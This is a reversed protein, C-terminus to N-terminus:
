SLTLWMWVIYYHQQELRFFLGRVRVLLFNLHSIWMFKLDSKWIISITLFNDCCFTISEVIGLYAFCLRLTSFRTVATLYISVQFYFMKRPTRIDLVTFVLLKNFKFYKSSIVTGVFTWGIGDPSTPNKGFWLHINSFFKTKFYLKLTKWILLQGLAEIRILNLSVGISCTSPRWFTLM